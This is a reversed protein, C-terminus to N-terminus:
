FPGTCFVFNPATRRASFKPSKIVASWLTKLSLRSDRFLRRYSTTTCSRVVWHIWTYGNLVFDECSVWLLKCFNKSGSLFSVTTSVSLEKSNPLARSSRKSDSCTSVMCILFLLILQFLLACLWLLCRQQITAIVDSHFNTPLNWPISYRNAFRELFTIQHSFVMHYVNQSVM